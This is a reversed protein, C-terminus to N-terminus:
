LFSDTTSHLAARAKDLLVSVPEGKSVLASIGRAHAEQDSLLDSYESFVLIPTEPVFRRLVHAAELGNMVPMELDLVILDPHLVQAM